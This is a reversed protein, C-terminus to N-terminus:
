IKVVRFHRYTDILKLLFLVATKGKNPFLVYFSPLMKSKSLICSEVGGLM